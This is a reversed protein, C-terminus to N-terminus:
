VRPRPVCTLWGHRLGEFLIKERTTLVKAAAQEAMKM